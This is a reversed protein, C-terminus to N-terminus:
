SFLPERRKWAAYAKKLFPHGSFQISGRTLNIEGKATTLFTEATATAEDVIAFGCRWPVIGLGNLQQFLISAAEALEDSHRMGMARARVRELAAEIQAERAQAEAKQLDFYRKFTLDIVGAFRKLINIEGDGIPKEAWGYLYGNSFAIFYGYQTYDSSTETLANGPM